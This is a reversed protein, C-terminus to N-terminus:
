YATWTWLVNGRADLVRLAPLATGVRMTTLDWLMNAAIRRHEPYASGDRTSTLTREVGTRDLLKGPHQLYLQDMM